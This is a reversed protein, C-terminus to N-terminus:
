YHTQRSHPPKRRERRSSHRQRADAQTETKSKKGHQKEKDVQDNFIDKQAETEAKNELLYREYQRAFYEQTDRATKQKNLVGQKNYTSRKFEKIMDDYRKIYSQSANGSNIYDIMSQLFSHAFEHPLTSPDANQTLKILYNSPNFSGKVGQRYINGEETSYAGINDISKIQNSNFAVYSEGYGMDDKIILGDYKSLVKEFYPILDDKFSGELSFNNIIDLNIRAKEEDSSEKKMYKDFDEESSVYDRKYQKNYKKYEEYSYVDDHIESKLIDLM